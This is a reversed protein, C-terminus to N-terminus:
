QFAKWASLAEGNERMSAMLQEYNISEVDVRQLSQLLGLLPGSTVPAQHWTLLFGMGAVAKAESEPKCANKNGAPAGRKSPGNWGVRLAKEFVHRLEEQPHQKWYAIARAKKETFSSNNLGWQEHCLFMYATILKARRYNSTSFSLWENM